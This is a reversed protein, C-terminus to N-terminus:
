RTVPPHLASALEQDGSPGNQKIDRILWGMEAFEERQVIADAGERVLYPMAGPTLPPSASPSGVRHPITM